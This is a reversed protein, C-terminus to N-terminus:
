EVKHVSFRSYPAMATLQNSATHTLYVDLTDGASMSVTVARARFWLYNANYVVSNADELGIHHATTNHRISMTLTMGSSPSGSSYVLLAANATYVGATPATFAHSTVNDFNGGFDYEETGFQVTGSSGGGSPYNQNSAKRASFGVAFPSISYRDIWFGADNLSLSREVVLRAFAATSPSELIAEIPKWTASNVYADPYVDANSISAKAQTYWEVYLTMEDQNIVDGVSKMAAEFKYPKSPAVPIYDGILSEVNSGEEFFISFEGTEGDDRTFDSWTSSAGPNWGDPPYEAGRSWANFDFNHNRGTNEALTQQPGITGEHVSVGDTVTRSRLDTVATIGTADSEVKALPAWAASAAPEAVSEYTVPQGVETDMYVYTTSNASVAMEYAEEVYGVGSPGSAAGAAIEVNLGTAASVELEDEYGERVHTDAWYDMVEAAPEDSYSGRTGAWTRTGASAGTKTAWALVWKIKPPSAFYDYQKGIVEWKTNADLGDDGYGKFRDTVLAVLDSVEVQAHSFDTECEVVYVGGDAFRDLKAASMGHAITVDRLKKLNGVLPHDAITTGLAGRDKVRLTVFHPIGGVTVDTATEPDYIKNSTRLRTTNVTAQDFSIVEDDIKLYLLRSASIQADAAQSGAPFGSWRTGCIAGVLGGGV